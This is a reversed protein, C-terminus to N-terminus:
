VASARLEAVTADRPPANMSFVLGKEIRFSPVGGLAHRAVQVTVLVKGGLSPHDSQRYVTLEAERGQLVLSEFQARSLEGATEYTLSGRLQEIRADVARQAEAKFLEAKTM